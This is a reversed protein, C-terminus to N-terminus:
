QIRLIFPDRYEPPITKVVQGTEANLIQQM